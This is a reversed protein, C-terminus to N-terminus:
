ETTSRAPNNRGLWFFQILGALEDPNASRTVHHCQAESLERAYGYTAVAVIPLAPHQHLLTNIGALTLMTERPNGGEPYVVVMDPMEEACYSLPLKHLSGVFELTAEPAKDAILQRIEAEWAQNGGYLHVRM